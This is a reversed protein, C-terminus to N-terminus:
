ASEERPEEAESAVPVWGYTAIASWVLDGLRQYGETSPHFNDSSIYEPHALAEHSIDFLDLVKVRDGYARVTQAIAANWKQVGARVLDKQESYASYQLLLSLDPVNLVLIHAETGKTLASLAKRLDATYQDLPIIRVADNVCNWMTVIDPKASVAKPIEVSNAERL